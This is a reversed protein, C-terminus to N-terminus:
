KFYIPGNQRVSGYISLGVSDCASLSVDTTDLVTGVRRSYGFAPLSM